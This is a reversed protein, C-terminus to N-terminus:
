RVPRVWDYAMHFVYAYILYVLTLGIDLLVAEIFGHGGMVMVVPVTLIMLTAELSFAHVIRWAQPRDSASRHALRWEVVDFIANHILVWVTAVVSVAIILLLSDQAGAGAVLAYLPAAVLIGGLECSVAQYVRERFNRIGM